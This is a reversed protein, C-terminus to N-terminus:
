VKAKVAAGSDVLRGAQRRRPEHLLACTLLWRQVRPAARLVQRRQRVVGCGQQRHHAPVCIIPKVAIPDVLNVLHQDGESRDGECSGRAARCCCAPAAATIVAVALRLRSSAEAAVATGSLRAAPSPGAWLRCRVSSAALLVAGRICLAAPARLM